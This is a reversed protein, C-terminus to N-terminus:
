NGNLLSVMYPIASKKYRETKIREVRYKEIRRREMSHTNKKLPFMNRVKENKLCGKAFKLCLSKRRDDLTELNLCKLGEQYTIYNKGMILYVACKQIRELDRRNKETLSSHWVVASKELISRIYSIYISRLDNRNSTFKVARNLIQMRQYASKVIESTNKNWKLDSTIHTGLLKMEKVTEIRESELTMNTSFQFKRSFNFLMNKTKKLNLKMKKKKTWDNIVELHQKSKLQNSDLIQNHTAIHSPVQQKLNYSALGANLLNIIELFTLDDVFKFRESENICNANDNSQSLYEWIGLTGGQPGGGKLERESSFQNHWKVRMFRGQFYSILLPILAPRVGNEIFSEVGLKPCQRPFAQKWDVFTALVAQKDNEDVAKLIRDIMKILYHNISLGKQNAYQSPDIQKKMDRIVMKSVIKEFLKDLNLLGSINRLEDVNKPSSKKPVPTVIEHKLIDPWIGQKLATNIVNTVPKSLEKAFLKWFKIPIDGAISSKSADMEALAEFVEKETIIPIESEEFRPVKIDDTELKEYELSIEVFKDAIREAQEHDPLDKIDEVVLKEFDNQDIRLMKKLQQHWKKPNSSKLDKIKRKYFEKKAKKLENEYKKNLNQYRQSRRKKQYERCKKRKLKQLKENFFPQDDSSVYRTKEPFFECYKSYFLTQFVDAKKHACKEKFVKEWDETKIWSKMKELNENNFARYTIEKKSRAPENSLMNIPEMVVMLHDSPKGNRNFDSELPPLCKPLQYYSALTTIIPDLIRPPNLRTPDQVVQRMNKNLHLISDLKLDNTDGCIIWHLGNSFKSCIQNYVQAIHDLLVSKKRSNPKCYISGVAIKQIKSSITTNKPTLLAWVAEVGWPVSVVTKTLDEVDYKKKNAIIAPRGGMGKRQFVNSIIEYDQLSIIENLKLNEREWSESICTLDVQEEKVFNVYEEVKNYISRPNLNLIKPLNIAQLSKNCRKINILNRLKIKKKQRKERFFRIKERFM